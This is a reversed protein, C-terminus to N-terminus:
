AFCVFILGPPLPTSITAADALNFRTLFSDIVAEQPISTTRTSRDREALMGLVWKVEMLGAICYKEGIGKMPEGLIKGSVIWVFKDVWFGGAVFDSRNWDVRRSEETFHVGECEGYTLEVGREM